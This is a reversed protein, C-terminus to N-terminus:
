NKFVEIRRNQKSDEAPESGVIKLQKKCSFSQAQMELGLIENDKNEM